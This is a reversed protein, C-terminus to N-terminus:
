FHARTSPPAEIEATPGALPNRLLKAPRGGIKRQRGLEKSVRNRTAERGLRSEAPQWGPHRRLSVRAWIPTRPKFLPEERPSDM